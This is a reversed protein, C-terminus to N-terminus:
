PQRHHRGPNATPRRSVGAWLANGRAAMTLGAVLAAQQGFNRTLRLLEIRFSYASKTRLEELLQSSADTSGDDVVLLILDYKRLLEWRAVLEELRSCFEGALNGDNFSPCVNWGAGM